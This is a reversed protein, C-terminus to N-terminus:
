QHRLSIFGGMIFFYSIIAMINHIVWMAAADTIAINQLANSLAVTFLTGTYYILVSSSVWFRSDFFIPKSSDQIISILTYSSMGTLIANAISSTYTDATSFDEIWIKSLVWIVAFGIISVRFIKRIIPMKQWYSFIYALFIFEILTSIHFIWINNKWYLGVYYNLINMILSIIIFYLLLRMIMSLSKYVYIGITCTIVLVLTMIYYSLFVSTYPM